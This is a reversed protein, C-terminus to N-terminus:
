LNVCSPQLNVANVAYKLDELVCWWRPGLTQFEIFANDTVWNDKDYEAFM